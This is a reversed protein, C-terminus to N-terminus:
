GFRIGGFLPGTSKPGIRPPSSPLLRLRLSSCSSGASPSPSAMLVAATAIFASLYRGRMNPKWTCSTAFNCLHCSATRSLDTMIVLIVSM